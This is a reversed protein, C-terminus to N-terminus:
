LPSEAKKETDLCSLNLLKREVIRFQKWPEDKWLGRCSTGCFCVPKPEQQPLAQGVRRLYTGNDRSAKQMGFKYSSSSRNPTANTPRRQWSHVM